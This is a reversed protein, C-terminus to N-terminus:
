ELIAKKIIALSRQYDSQDSCFKFYKKRTFDVLDTYDCIYHQMNEPEVYERFSSYNWDQIHQILGASYPNLHVYRTLHLLQEDNEVRVSKFRSMWLTGERRHSVNFYRAYGNLSKRLFESIGNDRLQKVIIHFHTPMICYAIIQVQQRGEQVYDAIRALVGETKILPDHELFYSFKAPPHILTFYWMLHTMREYDASRNFIKFGEISKNMVHYVEGTM